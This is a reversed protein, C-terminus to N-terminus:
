EKDALVIDLGDTNVIYESEKRGDPGLNAALLAEPPATVQWVEGNPRGFMTGGAYRKAVKRDVTWSWDSRREAVSGRWLTLPEKPRPARQGDVTFSASQFLELWQERELCQDPFEALSWVSGVTAALVDFSITEGEWAAWLVAPASNRGEALLYRDLETQSLTTGLNIADWFEETIM